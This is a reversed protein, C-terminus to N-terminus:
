LDVGPQALIGRGRQGVQERSQDLSGAGLLGAAIEALSDGMQLLHGEAEEVMLAVFIEESALNRLPLCFIELLRQRAGAQRHTADVPDM